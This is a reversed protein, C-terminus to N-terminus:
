LPFHRFKKHIYYMLAIMSCHTKVSDLLPMSEITEGGKPVLNTPHANFICDVFLDSIRCGQVASSGLWLKKALALFQLVLGDLQTM